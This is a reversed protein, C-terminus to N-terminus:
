RRAEYFTKGDKIEKVVSGESTLEEAYKVVENRHIGLGNAIDDLTCPRRMLLDLVQKRRAELDSNEHMGTFHTIMECSDGFVEVFQEMKDMPVAKAYSEAPPRAVTNLQIRDPNIEKAIEAMKEVEGLSGTIGDLLFVELWFKGPFTKKFEVLGNVMRDFTIDEHPRNVQEFTAQDYADLSPIVLDADMISAAMDEVWLLSGNTLVAIPVSAMRKIGSIIDAMGSHLSPEGSGALTIYDPNSDLAKRVQTLIGEIPVWEKRECTKVTTRGLQCYICDYTCTKFPVLDVGLSRGLRRSPVPGYIYNPM